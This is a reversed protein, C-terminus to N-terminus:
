LSRAKVLEGIFDTEVMLYSELAVLSRFIHDDTNEANQKCEAFHKREDPSFHRVVHDLAKLEQENM